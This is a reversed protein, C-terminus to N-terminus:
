IWVYMYICVCIFVYMYMGTIHDPKLLDLYEAPIVGETMQSAAIPIV